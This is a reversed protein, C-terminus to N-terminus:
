FRFIPYLNHKQNSKEPVFMIKLSIKGFILRLVQCEAVFNSWFYFNTM